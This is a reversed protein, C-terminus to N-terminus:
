CRVLEGINHESTEKRLVLRDGPRLNPEISVTFMPDGDPVEWTDFVFLYLLLLIAGVIAAFWAATRAWGKVLSITDRSRFAYKSRPAAAKPTAHRPPATIRRSSEVCSRSASASER